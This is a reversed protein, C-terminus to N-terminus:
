YGLKANVLVPLEEAARQTEGLDIDVIFAGPAAGLEGVIEGFPSVVRSFGVGTPKTWDADPDQTRPDAQDVAVIFSNSDLARTATILKWQNEKNMGGGWSSPALIVQAGARAYNAYLKPFRLDYCITLGVVVGDVDIATPMNGPAMTDSEKYGFADYLHIKTYFNVEGEPTVAILQNLIREEGPEDSLAFGGAVLHVGYHTAIDTIERRWTEAYKAIAEVLEGTFCHMTAEPFVVLRAGEAALRDVNERVLEINALVDTGSLIQAVAIKM